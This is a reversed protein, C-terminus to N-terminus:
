WAPPNFYRNSHGCKLSSVHSPLLVGIASLNVVSCYQQQTALVRAILIYLRIMDVLEMVRTM